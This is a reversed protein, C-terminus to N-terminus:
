HVCVATSFVTATFGVTSKIVNVWTRDLESNPDLNGLAGAYNALHGGATHVGNIPIIGGGTPVSGVPCVVNSNVYGNAPITVLVYTGRIKPSSTGGGSLNDIQSQLDALTDQLTQILAGQNAVSQILSDLQGQIDGVAQLSELQTQITDIQAQLESFPQGSTAFALKTLAVLCLVLSIIFGNNKTM